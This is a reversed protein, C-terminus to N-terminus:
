STLYSDAELQKLRVCDGNQVFEKDKKEEDYPMFLKAKLAAPVQSANLTYAKKAHFGESEAKMVHLYFPTRSHLSKINFFDTFNIVLGTSSEM